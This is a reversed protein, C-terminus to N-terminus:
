LEAKHAPCSSPGRELDDWWSPSGIGREYCGVILEATSHVRFLKLLRTVYNHVTGASLNMAAAIEKQSKAALVHRLVKRQTPSLKAVVSDRCAKPWRYIRRALFSHPFNDRVLEAAERLYPKRSRDKGPTADLEILALAARWTIGVRKAAAHVAEFAARAEHNEGRIRHVLGRVFTELVWLRVDDRFLLSRDIETTLQDYRQLARVAALPDAVALIEALLLLGVRAEDSTANWDVNEGVEVAEAAFEAAVDIDGFAASIQARNALSWVQWPPNPALDHSLRARRYADKKEGDFAFLWADMAETVMRFENLASAPRAEMRSAAAGGSREAHTGPVKASRLTVELSAIQVVIRHLLDADRERCAQYQELASRFLLLADHFYERTAAVYGRLAAARVSIIDARAAEAVRALELAARYDRELWHAFATWYAIEARITRHASATLSAANLDDLLALGRKVSVSRTIAVSYLMRATCIEDAGTFTSLVPGLLEVVEAARYLRLMARARLLLAERQQSECLSVAADLTELCAALDDDL